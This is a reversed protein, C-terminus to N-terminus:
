KGELTESADNSVGKKAKTLKGKATTLAKKATAIADGDTGKLAEDLVFQAAEGKYTLLEIPDTIIADQPIFVVEGEKVGAAALEPNEKLDDATVIHEFGDQKIQKDLADTPEPFHLVHREKMVVADSKGKAKLSSAHGYAHHSVAFAQGDSTFWFTDVKAHDKFAQLFDIKSDM